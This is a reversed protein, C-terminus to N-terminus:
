WGEKRAQELAARGEDTAFVEDSSIERDAMGVVLGKRELALGAVGCRAGKAKNIITSLRRLQADTLKHKTYTRV